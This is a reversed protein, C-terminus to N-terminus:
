KCTQSYTGGIKLRILEKCIGVLKMLEKGQRGFGLSLWFGSEIVEPDFVERLVVM